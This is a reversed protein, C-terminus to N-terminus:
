LLPCLEAGTNWNIIYQWSQPIIHFEIPDFIILMTQPQERHKEKEKKKM